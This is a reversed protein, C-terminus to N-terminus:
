QNESVETSKANEDGIEEKLAHIAESLHRVRARPSLPETKSCLANWIGAIAACGSHGLKWEMMVREPFFISPGALLEDRNVSPISATNVAFDLYWIAKRLDDEKSAGPKRGARAIYKLASGLAFDLHWAQIVDIVEVTDPSYYDPHDIQTPM